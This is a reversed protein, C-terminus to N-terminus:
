LGHDMVVSALEIALKNKYLGPGGAWPITEGM